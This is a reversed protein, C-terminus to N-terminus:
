SVESVKALATEQSIYVTTTAVADVSAEGPRVPEVSGTWWYGVSLPAPFSIKFARAKGTGPAVAATDVASVLAPTMNASFEFSGGLDQLGAIYTKQVTEALTTSDLQAPTANLAPTSIIDPIETWTSPIAPVNDTVTSEGYYVKIGATSQAM